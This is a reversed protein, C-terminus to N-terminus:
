KWWEYKLVASLVFSDPVYKDNVGIGASISYGLRSTGTVTTTKAYGVGVYNDWSLEHKNAIFGEADPASPNTRDPTAETTHQRSPRLPQPDSVTQRPAREYFGIGYVTSTTQINKAEIGDKGYTVVSDSTGTTRAYSSGYGYSAHINLDKGTFSTQLNFEVPTKVRLDRGEGFDLHFYANGTLRIDGNGISTAQLLKYLSELGETQLIGQGASLLNLWNTKGGTTIDAVGSLSADVKFPEPSWKFTLFGTAGGEIAYKSQLFRKEKPGGERSFIDKISGSIGTLLLPPKDIKKDTAGHLNLDDFSNITGDLKTIPKTFDNEKLDPDQPDTGSVDVQRIPNNGAYAYVNLGGKIGIPDANLWRGLWPLYYRASHYAMGSEEDREMGTYRYRKAAAQLTANMAQYATTGFPHYEEYSIITANEDLELAASGQHNSYQYRILQETVPVGNKVTNTEVMAIRRKDDMIHLTETASQMNGASNTKLYIEFGGLYLREEKSGDQREIVKRIRQGSADYVYYAIGGGGLNVQQLQDKYNWTLGQLHAQSLINGHPDYSFTETNNNITTSNLRNGATHYAYTRTYSGAGAAHVMQLINGVADYQYNQTYNRLANGDGPMPQNIRSADSASSPINQGIHERGTANILRYIADYTYHSTATVVNNNFFITQQAEDKTIVMNGAPDYTYLLKQLIDTGNSGTTLLATLRFTKPDYQYRSVTNNGYAIQLRQRKADYDINNVFVKKGTAGHLQVEVKNLLGAENYLPTLISQDPSTVQVPRNLADFVSTSTYVTSELAPNSNWDIDNKYERTIQRSLQLANGKFDCAMHTVIGTADFQQYLKGRLNLQKDNAIGEGYTIKEFNIAANSGTSVFSKVARHLADYEFRFMHDRSDFTRLPKGMVDNVMWREGGDMSNQYLQAGLMDYQYQVLTNGRADIVRRVNGEIDTETITKLKGAAGNDAIALFARGLSDLHTISPTNAHAATKTAAEIEEPTAIAPVPAEIRDKYWQSDLVTDNQDYTAQKWADFVVKTFVGNPLNTRIVRGLPDYYIVPTVGREVLQSAEEFEFNTSFYPEYQKVPKGKNNLITRGNGIWRLHPTTDVETVTGDANEQLAIGPEAQVKSMVANGDGGIYTYSNQWVVPQGTALSDYYHTERVATKIFIPKGDHIYNFLDYELISTPQDSASTEASGMDMFDGQQENDKGMTYTSMVLGLEDTRVGSRNDNMDQLLWPQLTRFNFGLIATKNQLADSTQQVFFRYTNDYTIQAKFGFPDTMEIVQYFHAADFTQTGSAIWYNGDNFHVYKGENLLLDDNVKNGFIADRLGPTLSLKYSQYPLALSELIGPPLPGSCDNKLFLSRVQEILRKQKIGAGPQIEYAIVTAQEFDNKVQNISFYNGTDPTLGILEYSATEYAAPLHYDAPADIKNTFINESFTIHTKSQEAQETTTLAPDTTKRGYNIAAAKLVNGFEDVEINMTHAIRPDAPNREYTYTLSEGQQVLFVTYKDQLRPQLMKILCSHQATTYPINQLESGDPSYVEVRLPLGKCARLAERWVTVNTDAPLLPDRLRLEEVINNQYYEHAFQSLIKENDLFAGTHFWTKTLVPPQYFGEDVLQVSGDPNSHKKYQEFNETDTQDVRGFGRFEREFPDYYGHHYSYQNAFRTKRIKDIITVQSVCQVPFSLQTVWPTGAKKDQLYYYTSSKYAIEVENGMNNKYGTMVHPKKGGMLDIYRLAKHSHAPLPSSWVICGTGSGLLDIVTVHSFNDVGPFPLPNVGIVVNEESFSNGSQNFYIKFSNDGLYVLDTTGSGDIDAPKIYLPNFRDPHDFVPANSMNVKAGFRGYGLNPWYVVESCRIRVIDTLGDGNMDALLIAENSNAFVTVPGKEEDLTKHLAQYSDFGDKGKAAYWTFVEEEAVLIDAQGDGTLDLFKVHADKLNLNPVDTFNKFPLWDKDSDLEYYGHLENSVLFQQGSAELDRFQMAGASIGQLSPKAVVLQAASFHGDGANSKYFWGAAQETLIGAIGENYLDIWQYNGDDIGTPLNNMSDTPLAQVETNWGLPEYHFEVPPWAKETYNGDSKRIYGKQTVSLLFTFATGAAYGMNMSRVLCPQAGLETFHHFMLVRRCLRYTRIEFGARHESFPDTRCLWPNNDGPQPNNIDHEGYDLVLELLYDIQQLFSDWNAWDITQQNFHQHNCYKIRKLYVNTCASLDNLRNKEHLENPINAKDEQKYEYQFCNGKNDYSFEIFWKFIKIPDAPNYLQASKSKGYVTVVNNGDTTKWYINGNAETIKEIRAFGSEIRPRYRTTTIGDATISYKVWNGTNDQQYVPVLDEAGSFVFTDQEDADNYTPLKKDTRRSIAAPAANWGLGFIGNGSGSSYSLSLQPMFGNRSPSFPFPITLGATGNVANVSFKEDIARIAGGSKPLTIPPVSLSSYGAISKNDSNTKDGPQKNSLFYSADKEMGTIKKM